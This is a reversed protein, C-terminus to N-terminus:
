VRGTKRIDEGRLEIVNTYKETDVENDHCRYGVCMGSIRSSVRDDGIQMIPINATIFVKKGKKNEIRRQLIGYLIDIADDKTGVSGFDDIFLYDCASYEKFFDEKKLGQEKYNRLETSYRLLKTYKGQLICERLAAILLHTKGQGADGWLYVGTNDIVFRKAAEFAAHLNKVDRRLIFNDFRMERYGLPIIYDIRALRLKLEAERKSCEECLEDSENPIYKIKKGCKKCNGDVLKELIRKAVREITEQTEKDVSM